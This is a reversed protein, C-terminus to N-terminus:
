KALSRSSASSQARVLSASRPTWVSGPLRARRQRRRVRGCAVLVLCAGAWPAGHMADPAPRAASLTCGSDESAARTRHPGAQCLPACAARCLFSGSGAACLGDVAGRVYTFQETGPAAQEARLSVHCGDLTQVLDQAGRAMIGFLAGQADFAGGGSAGRLTDTNAVFYDASGARAEHVFAGADIKLPVGGPTGIFRLSAGQAVEGLWLAAPRYAPPVRRKLRLWAYDLRPESGPPDLREAAVELPEFVGAPHLALVGPATYYYGLVVVLESLPLFRLCHGATLVLDWDVLVGSCFAAAPQERFRETSCLNATDGWSKVEASLTARGADLHSRRMLAVGAGQALNRTELSSVEFYEQRDDEGFIIASTQAPAGDGADGCGSAFFALWSALM